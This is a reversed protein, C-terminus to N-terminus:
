VKLKRGHNVHYGFEIEASLRAVVADDFNNFYGLSIVKRDKSIVARWKKDRSQWSVGTVGSKNRVYMSQNMGNEIHTVVRLNEMRNDSRDHNIHDIQMGEPIKGVVAEWIIRHAMYLKNDFRVKIYGDRKCKCGAVSGVIVKRSSKFQWILNGSLEDYSLYDNVDIMFASEM